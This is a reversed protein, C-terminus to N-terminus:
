RTTMAKLHAPSQPSGAAPKEAPAPVRQAFVTTTLAVLAATALILTEHSSQRLYRCSRTDEGRDLAFTRCFAAACKRGALVRKM